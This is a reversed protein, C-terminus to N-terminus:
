AVRTPSTRRAIEERAWKEQAGTTALWLRTPCELEIARMGDLVSGSPAFAAYVRRTKPDRRFGMLAYSALSVM